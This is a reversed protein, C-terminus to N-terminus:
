GKIVKNSDEGEGVEHQCFGGVVLGGTSSLIRVDTDAIEHQSTDGEM